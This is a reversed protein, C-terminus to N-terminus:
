TFGWCIFKTETAGIVTGVSFKVDTVGITGTTLVRGVIVGAVTSGRGIGVVVGIGVLGVETSGMRKFLVEVCGAEM